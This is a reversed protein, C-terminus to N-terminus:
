SPIEEGTTRGTKSGVVGGPAGGGGKVNRAEKGKLTKEEGPLENVNVRGKKEESRKEQTKGSIM